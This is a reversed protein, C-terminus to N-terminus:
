DFKAGAVIWARLREVEADSLKAGAPPMPTKCGTCSVGDFSGTVKRFLWSRSPDGSAILSMRTEAATQTVLTTHVISPELGSLTLGLSPALADHCGACYADFIPLIDTEFAGKNAAPASPETSPTGADQAAPAVANRGLQHMEECQEVLAQQYVPDDESLGAADRYRQWMDDMWVHLRWFAFNQVNVNNDLLSSPSRPVAWMAHLGVHMGSLPRKATTTAAVGGDLNAGSAPQGPFPFGPFGAPFGPFGTLGGDGGPFGPFGGPFRPFGGDGGFGPLGPFTPFGGDGGFPFPFGAFGDGFQVWKAYDDESKFADLHEGINEMVDISARQDESWRVNVWPIPNEPHERSTPIERFGRMADAHKPFAQRLGRIMHRHM